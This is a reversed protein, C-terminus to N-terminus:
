FITYFKIYVRKSLYKTVKTIRTFKVRNLTFFVFWIAIIKFTSVIDNIGPNECECEYRRFVLRIVKIDIAWQSKLMYKQLIGVSVKWTCCERKLFKCVICSRKVFNQTSIIKHKQFFLSYSKLLLIYVLAFSMALAVVPRGNSYFDRAELVNIKQQIQFEYYNCTWSVTISSKLRLQQFLTSLAFLM